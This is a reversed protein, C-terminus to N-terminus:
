NGRKEIVSLSDITRAYIRDMMRIDEMYFELSRKFVSDPVQHKEFLDREMLPYLIRSSDFHIPFSSVMGELMHIDVLMEVMKDENLVGEPVKNSGCGLLYICLCVVLLNRKM